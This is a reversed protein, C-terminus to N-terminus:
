IDGLDEEEAKKPVEKGKAAAKGGKAPTKAAAKAPVKAEAKAESKVAAKAAKPKVKPQLEGADAAPASTATTISAAAAHELETPAVDTKKANM